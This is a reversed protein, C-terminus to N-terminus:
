VCICTFVISGDFEIELRSLREGNSKSPMSDTCKRPGDWTPSLTDRCDDTLRINEALLYTHLEVCQAHHYMYSCTRTCWKLIPYYIQEWLNSTPTRTSPYVTPPSLLCMLLANKVNRRTSLLTVRGCSVNSVLTQIYIHKSYECKWAYSYWLDWSTYILTFFRLSM